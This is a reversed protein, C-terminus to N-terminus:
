PKSGTTKADVSYWGSGRYIVAPARWLRTVDSSGCRPCVVEWAREGREAEAEFEAPCNQCEYDRLTM